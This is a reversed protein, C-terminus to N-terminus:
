SMDDHISQAMGTALVRNETCTDRNHHFGYMKGPVFKVLLGHRLLIICVFLCALYARSVFPLGTFTATQGPQHPKRPINCSHFRLMLVM